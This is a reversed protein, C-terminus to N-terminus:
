AQPVHTNSADIAVDAGLQGLELGDGFREALDCLEEFPKGTEADLQLVDIDAAIGEARPATVVSMLSELLLPPKSVDQGKPERPASPTPSVYLVVRRVEVEAHRDFIRDLAETLPLNVVVGGDLWIEGTGWAAVEYALVRM